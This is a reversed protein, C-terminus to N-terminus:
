SGRCCSILSLLCCHLYVSVSRSSFRPTLQNHSIAMHGLEIALTLWANLEIALALRTDSNSRWHWGLMLNSQLHSGRTLTRDRTYALCRTRDRTRGHEIALRLISNSQSYSWRTWTTEHRSNPSVRSTDLNLWSHSSRIRAMATFPKSSLQMAKPNAINTFLVVGMKPGMYVSQGWSANYM